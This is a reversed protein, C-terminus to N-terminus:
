DNDSPISGRASQDAALAKLEKATLDPLLEFVFSKHITTIPIKNGTVRDTKFKTQRFKRKLLSNYVPEQLHWVTNFPIFKGVVATKNGVQMTVGSREKYQPDNSSVRCRILKNMRKKIESPTEKKKPKVGEVRTPKGEVALEDEIIKEILKTKGINKPFEIGLEDAIARLDSLEKAELEERTIM